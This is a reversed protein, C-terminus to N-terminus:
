RRASNVNVTGGNSNLFGNVTVGELAFGTEQLKKNDAFNFAMGKDASISPNSKILTNGGDLGAALM